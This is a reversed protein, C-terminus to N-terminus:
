RAPLQSANGPEGSRALRAHGRTDSIHSVGEHFMCQDHANHERGSHRARSEGGVALAVAVAVELDAPDVQREVADRVHVAIAELDGARVVEVLDEDEALPLVLAEVEADVAGRELKAGPEM